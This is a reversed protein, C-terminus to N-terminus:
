SAEAGGYGMTDSVSGDARHITLRSPAHDRATQRGVKRAEEKTRHVSLARENGEKQVAWGDAHPAVRYHPVDAGNTSVGGSASREAAARSTRLASLRAQLAEVQERLAAVEARNPVGLQSLAVEVAREVPATAASAAGGAAARARGAVRDAAAEVEELAGRAAASGEEGVREGRAVLADFTDVGKKQARELAGLGAALVDEVPRPLAGKRLSKPLSDKAKKKRSKKSKAM